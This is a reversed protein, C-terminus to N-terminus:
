PPDGALAWLCQGAHTVVGRRKLNNLHAGVRRSEWGLHKALMRTRSPGLLKLADVVADSIFHSGPAPPTSVTVTNVESDIGVKKLYALFAVVEPWKEHHSPIDFRVSYFKSAM